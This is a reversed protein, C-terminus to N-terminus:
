EVIENDNDGDEKNEEKKGTENESIEQLLPKKIMVGRMITVDNDVMLLDHSNFDGAVFNQDLQKIQHLGLM